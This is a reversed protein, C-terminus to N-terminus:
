KPDPEELIQFIIAGEADRHMPWGTLCCISQCRYGSPIYDMEIIFIRLPRARLRKLKRRKRDSVMKPTTNVSLLVTRLEFNM